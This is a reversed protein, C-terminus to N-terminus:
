WKLGEERWTLYNPNAKLHRQLRAIENLKQESPGNIAEDKESDEFVAIDMSCVGDPLESFPIFESYARIFVGAHCAYRIRRGLSHKCFAYIGCDLEFITGDGNESAIIRKYSM